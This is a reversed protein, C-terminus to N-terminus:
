KVRDFFDSMAIEDILKFFEDIAATDDIEGNTDGNTAGKSGDDLREDVVDDHRDGAEEGTTEVERGESDVDGVEETGVGGSVDGVAVEDM